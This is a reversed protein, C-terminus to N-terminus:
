EIGLIDAILQRIQALVVPGVNHGTDELLDDVSITTINHCQAAGWPTDIESAWGRRTSTCPVVNVAKLEFALVDDHTVV